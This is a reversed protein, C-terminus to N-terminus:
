RLVAAAACAHGQGGGQWGAGAGVRLHATGAPMHGAIRSAALPTVKLVLTYTKQGYTVYRRTHTPNSAPVICKAEGVAPPIGSTGSVVASSPPM